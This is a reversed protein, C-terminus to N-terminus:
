ATKNFRRFKLLNTNQEIPTIEEIPETTEIEKSQEKKLEYIYPVRTFRTFTVGWEKFVELSLSNMWSIRCKLGNACM